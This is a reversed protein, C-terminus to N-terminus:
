GLRVAWARELLTFVFGKGIDPGPAVQEEVRVKQGMSCAPWKSFPWLAEWGQRFWPWSCSDTPRNVQHGSM